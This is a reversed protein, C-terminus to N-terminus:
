ASPGLGNSLRERVSPISLAAQQVTQAVIV